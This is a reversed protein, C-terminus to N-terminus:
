KPKRTRPDHLENQLDMGTLATNVIELGGIKINAEAFERTSMILRVEGSRDRLFVTGHIPLTDVYGSDNKFGVDDYGRGICYTKSGDPYEDVFFPASRSRFTIIAARISLLHRELNM